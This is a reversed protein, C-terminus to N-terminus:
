RIWHDPSPNGCKGCIKFGGVNIEDINVCVCM